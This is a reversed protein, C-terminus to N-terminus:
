LNDNQKILETFDVQSIDIKEAILMNLYPKKKETLIKCGYSLRYESIGYKVRLIQGVAEVRRRALEWSMGDPGLMFCATLQLENGVSNVLNAFSELARPAQYDLQATGKEFLADFDIDVSIGQELQKFGLQMLREKFENYRNKVKLTRLNVVALSEKKITIEKKGGGQIEGGAKNKDEKFLNMKSPVNVGSDMISLAGQIGGIVNMLKSEDPTSFSLLLVFFTVLLSMCDGMTLMWEPCGEVYKINDDKKPM